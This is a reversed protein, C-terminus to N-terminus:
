EENRRVPMIFGANYDEGSVINSETVLVPGLKHEQYFTPHQFNKLHDELLYVPDGDWCNFRRLLQGDQAVLSDSMTLINSNLPQVKCVDRYNIHKQIKHVDLWLDADPINYAIVDDVSICTRDVYANELVMVRAPNQILAALIAKQVAPVKM